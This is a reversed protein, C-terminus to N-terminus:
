SGDGHPPLWSRTSDLGPEASPDLDALHRLRYFVESATEDVEVVEVLFEDPSDRDLAVLRDGVALPRWSGVDLSTCLWGDATTESPSRTLYVTEPAGDADRLTPEPVQDSM